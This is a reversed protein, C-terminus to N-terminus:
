EVRRALVKELGAVIVDLAFDLQEVDKGGSTSAVV